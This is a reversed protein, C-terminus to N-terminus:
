ETKKRLVAQIWGTYSSINRVKFGDVMNTIRSGSLSHGLKTSFMTTNEVLFIQNIELLLETYKVNNETVYM